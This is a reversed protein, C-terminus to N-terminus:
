KRARAGPGERGSDADRLAGGPSARPEDLKQAARAAAEAFRTAARDDAERRESDIYRRYLEPTDDALVEGLRSLDAFFFAVPLGTAAAALPIEEPKIDARRARKGLKEDLLSPSINLARAYEARSLKAYGQAARMRRMLEDTSTFVVANSGRLDKRAFDQQLNKCQRGLDQAHAVGCGRLHPERDDFRVHRLPRESLRDADVLGVERADDVTM